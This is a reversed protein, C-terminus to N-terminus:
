YVLNETKVAVSYSLLLLSLVAQQCGINEAIDKPLTNTGMTSLAWRRYDSLEAQNQGSFNGNELLRRFKFLKRFNSLFCDDNLKEHCGLTSTNCNWPM